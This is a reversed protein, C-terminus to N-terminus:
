AKNNKANYDKGKSKLLEIIPANSESDPIIPNDSKMIGSSDIDGVGVEWAHKIVIEKVIISKEFIPQVSKGGDSVKAPTLRFQKFHDFAKILDNLNKDSNPNLTHMRTASTIYRSKLNKLKQLNTGICVRYWYPNDKDIGKLISIRIMNEGDEDGFRDIWGDFITNAMEENAFGIFIGMGKDDVFFGFSNWGAKDWSHNDIITITQQQDHRTSKWDDKKPKAEHDEEKITEFHLPTDRNYEFGEMGDSVWDSLKIKPEDGLLSKMCNSHNFVLALRESLEENKFLQTLHEEADPIMFNQHLFAAVFTLLKEDFKAISISSLLSPCVELIFHGNKPCIFSFHEAESNTERLEIIVEESISIIEGLSTSLFGELYALITESYWVFPAENTSKIAVGCGLINSRIEVSDDACLDTEHRFQERIPSAALETMQTILDFDKPLESQEKYSEEVIDQHGLKLLVADNSLELGCKKMITPVRAYSSDSVSTNLFRAALCADFFEFPPLNESQEQNLNYIVVGYLEIWSLFSPVRGILLENQLLEVTCELVRYNIKGNSYWEEFLKSTAIVLCNNAAWILGLGSYAMSLGRLSLYLGHSGEEKAMKRVARGFYIASEKFQKHALKQGGRNIFISGAALESNRREDLEAIRDILKDYASNAAYLQGLELFITKFSEFPFDMLPPSQDFLQQINGIAEDISDKNKTKFLLDDCAIHMKSILASTPKDEKKTFAEFHAFLEEHEKELDIKGKPFDEQLSATRLLNFLNSFLEIEQVSSQDNLYGKLNNLEDICSDYDNYWNICTWALQYHIRIYQKPNDVKKCYRLARDFKGLVEDKPKELMRSLLASELADEVLQFDYESYRNPNKINEELEELRKIREADNKGLTTTKQKYDTSLNLCDVALDFLENDFTKELIWKGDLITVDVGHEKKLQDQVDKKQKSSPTQNTFFFIHTYDRETSVISKVDAKVKPKWAKKASIAVAWKENNNWGNEPIFWRNSISESVPHTESDTKGDGGGTPGTQPILNPAITQEALKRSFHEFEDQKQNTTLQDLEFAFVERTLRIDHLEESDSFYEPRRLRYFESPTLLKEM